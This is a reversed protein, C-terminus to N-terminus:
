AASVPLQGGIGSYPHAHWRRAQAICIVHLILLLPVVFTPILSMPLVNMASTAIGHPNFLAATTGLFVAIVLDSIGLVQWLIFGKKHDPTVLKMAVLPATAGIAIDGWGAPLAFMGPLIGYTYLVLFVIGVVRWAHVLTLTLPNLGLAFERFQESTAFWLLFVVIPGLAAIGFALPPRGPDTKFIHLASAALSVVFWVAILSTTLKGYNFNTM